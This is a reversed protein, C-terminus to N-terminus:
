DGTVQELLARAEALGPLDPRKAALRKLHIAAAQRSNLDLTGLREFVPRASEQEDRALLLAGIALLASPRASRMLPSAALIAALRGPNDGTGVMGRDIAEHAAAEAADVDTVVRYAADLGLDASLDLIALHATAAEGDLNSLLARTRSDNLIAWHEGLYEQSAHWTQTEIWLRVHDLSAQATMLGDLVVDLGHTRVDTALGRVLDAPGAADPYLDCVAALWAEIRADTVTNAHETLIAILKGPAASSLTSVVTFLPEPIPLAAWAPLGDLTEPSWAASRAQVHSRLDRRVRLAILRSSRDAAALDIGDVTAAAETVLRVSEAVDTDQLHRSLKLRLEAASIPPTDAIAERWVALCDDASAGAERLRNALNNLSTALDPTYVAPAAQALARRLTVAEEIAELAGPRDGNESRQVSLNNLSMALDPTYVAPAAQALARRLTVAEEIAELAGPRDGNESRRNSLNNLSVALDPTYVAPAAQALARYLTVAEEIAELAGPRDGNESRRNSLNNLSAALDPTYVAPAAQALARRLTVAEEIAELAGPRDGNESRRDSLNNLSMALDPTYVAPAAQALAHCLTVAEEIAELAGPRDGNESRQVSLNNLSAALDPTYVAPAAQALAQRLTVAEEIAELAGPRDGNESRRNSLNNLSMALDPTYVAPAAQALAQYLTVAEEIAELAGPRDGNESRQNSLNNLSAALDPTYVAPAAQALAQYLTVAEEIAELAGPRDGTESRQVSLNNLSAALNPTYVAPAAQALAQYLTVAEEIAELAGPRDGNESRRNSLNNLSGALDPTYVAPAAQALARRLTVAEEIAELAGPRDGNESRQNSLNNLSMALDPTYVAPAAQALAQYLTVAKEIAELAGPRDGNESRQNSLNNLSGALDPTYVAPAAQALAQYLTVAEEIAELAGPRDGNESRRNSLNNLSMALDPTYVAPAAQALAQYLTVAEEIAELAGPRDGNESRRNSLNNLSMALDPTYVAPAAQALAQRLTVAKEIAELAGPRDGNESRQNSLNNLSAALNPTYVAPAAQALAQYLTVAEEIAELAGPRDGNESRQHLPQEAVGRPRPHLRRPRSPGPGPRLTVAEEIAALAGIRDGLNQCRGALRELIEAQALPPEGAARTRRLRAEEAYVGIPSTVLPSFPIAGAVAELPLTPSENCLDRELVSLVPGGQLLALELAAPWRDPHNALLAEISGTATDLDNQGARNLSGLARTWSLEDMTLTALVQRSQADPGGLDTLVLHDGVPDPRVTVVEGGDLCHRLVRGLADREAELNSLVTLKMLTTDVDSEAAQVLTLAAGARLLRARDPEIEPRISRYRAIWYDAEHSLASSYLTAKTQPLTCDTAASLWGLLVFDLTTWEATAAPWEEPATQRQNRYRQAADHAHRFITASQAHARPLTVSREAPITRLDQAANHLEELWGGTERRATLILLTTLGPPRAHLTHLLRRIDGPRDPTGVRGEAYDVVVCLPTVVAALGEVDHAGKPLVGACWGQERLGQAVELALRTKGSGGLGHVIVVSTGGSELVEDAVDELITREDRAQFPVARHEPRLFRLPTEDARDLVFPPTLPNALPAAAPRYPEADLGPLVGIRWDWSALYEAGQAVAEAFSASLGIAPSTGLDSALGNPDIAVISGPGDLRSELLDGFEPPPTTWVTTEAGDAPWWDQGASGVRVAVLAHRAEFSELIVVMAPVGALRMGTALILALDLCTGNRPFALVEMPTRIVQAGDILIEGEFAYRIPSDPKDKIADYVAQARSLAADVGPGPLHVRAKVQEPLLYRALNAPEEIHWAPWHSEHPPPVRHERPSTSM